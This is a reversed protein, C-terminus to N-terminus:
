SEAPWPGLAMEQLAPRFGRSRFLAAAAENQAAVGLLVGGPSGISRLGAVAADLLKGGIGLRRAAPAVYLDHIYGVHGTLAVLSPSEIAGFVYGVLEGGQDAVLVVSQPRGVHEAFLAAYAAALDAPLQYRGSDYAAHQLALAAALRCLAPVDAAIAARITISETM